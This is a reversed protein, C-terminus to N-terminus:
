HLNDSRERTIKLCLNWSIHLKSRCKQKFSNGFLFPGVDEYEEQINIFTSFKAPSYFAVLYKHTSSQFMTKKLMRDM